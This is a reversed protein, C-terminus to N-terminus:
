SRRSLRRGTVEGIEVLLRRARPGPAWSDVAADRLRESREGLTDTVDFAHGKVLVSWGAQTAMDIEDIELAALRQRGVELKTGADTRVVIGDPTYAYNVPVVIPQRGDVVGLRGVRTRALLELCEDRPIEELSLEPDHESGNM